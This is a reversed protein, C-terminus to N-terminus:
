PSKIDDANVKDKPSGPNTKGDKGVSWLDFDPNQTNSNSTGAANVATRYRYENGWPDLIRTTISPTGSTWGQRNDAPDLEALYIKQNEDGTTNGVVAGKGDNNSDWYLAKFLIKSTGEGKLPNDTVPYTGFDLKYEELAKSILAMQVLAKSKAQKESVFGMGGVVLSALIVIISIVALMEILSFGARANRPTNQM